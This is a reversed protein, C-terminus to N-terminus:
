LVRRFIIKNLIIYNWVVVMGMCIFKAISSNIGGKIMAEILVTTIIINVLALLSYLILQSSHKKDKSGTFSWAKHLAFSYFFGILFSMVNAILVQGLMAYLGIFSLLEIIASSGGVAVYRIKSDNLIQRITM